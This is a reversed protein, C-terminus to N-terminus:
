KKWSIISVKIYARWKKAQIARNNGWLHVESEITALRQDNRKRNSSVIFKLSSRWSEVVKESSYWNIQKIKQELASSTIDIEINDKM